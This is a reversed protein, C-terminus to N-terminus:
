RACASIARERAPRPLSTPAELERGQTPPDTWHIAMVPRPKRSDQVGLPEVGEDGGGGLVEVVHRAGDGVRQEAPELEVADERPMPRAQHDREYVGGAHGRFSDGHVMEGAVALEEELVSVLRPGDAALNLVPGARGSGAGRVGEHADQPVEADEPATDAHVLSSQERRRPPQEVVLEAARVHRRRVLEEPSGPHDLAGPFDPPELAGGLDSLVPHRRHEGHQFRPHCLALRRV